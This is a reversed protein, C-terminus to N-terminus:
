DPYYPKEVKPEKKKVPPPPLPPPNVAIPDNQKAKPTVKKTKPPDKKATKKPREPKKRKEDPKPPININRDEATEDAIAILPEDDKCVALTIPSCNDMLINGNYGFLVPTVYFAELVIFNYDNGLPKLKFNYEKWDTHEIANTEALPESRGCRNNSAWIRLCIPQTFQTQATDVKRRSLYSESCALHVSFDYCEGRVLPMELGQGVAEWTDTDRTVLGIYTNGQQAKKFVKFTRNPQTDPPTEGPEGCDYWGEPTTSAAPIGEFSPNDLRIIQATTQMACILLAVITSVIILSKYM